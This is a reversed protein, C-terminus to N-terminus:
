SDNPNSPSSQKQPSHYTRQNKVEEESQRYMVVNGKSIYDGEDRETDKRERSESKSKPTRLLLILSIGLGLYFCLRRGRGMLMLMLGLVGHMRWFMRRRKTRARQRM